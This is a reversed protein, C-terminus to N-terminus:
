FMPSREMLEEVWTKLRKSVPQRLFGVQLSRRRNHISNSFGKTHTLCVIGAHHHSQLGKTSNTPRYHRLALSTNRPILFLPASEARYRHEYLADTKFCVEEQGTSSGGHGRINVPLHQYILPRGHDTLNDRSAYGLRVRIVQNAPYVFFLSLSL